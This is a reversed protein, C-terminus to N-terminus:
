NTADIVEDYALYWAYQEADMTNMLEVQEKYYMSLLRDELENMMQNLSRIFLTSKMVTQLPSRMTQIKWRVSLANVQLVSHNTSMSKSQVQARREHFEEWSIEQFMEAPAKAYKAWNNPFYPKKNTM